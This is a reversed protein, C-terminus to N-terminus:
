DKQNSKVVSDNADVSNTESKKESNAGSDPTKKASSIPQLGLTPVLYSIFDHLIVIGYFVITFVIVGILGALRAINEGGYFLGIIASLIAGCSIFLFFYLRSYFILALQVFLVIFVFTAAVCVFVKCAGIFLDILLDIM